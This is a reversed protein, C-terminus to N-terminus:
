AVKGGHKIPRGKNMEAKAIVAEAVRWKENEALDMIRIICDALEAEASNFEPVKDDAKNGMRIGEIAESLETIMLAIASIQHTATGFKGLGVCQGKLEADDAADMLEWRHRWWGKTKATEHVEWQLGKFQEIFEQSNNM